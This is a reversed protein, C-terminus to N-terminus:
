RLFDEGVKWVDGAGMTIVIDDKEAHNRLYTAAEPITPIYIADVLPVRTGKCPHGKNIAAVLDKSHVGGHEERASGYIDLIIVQDADSFSRAFDDFFTKTRTFTHPHFVVWLKQKPYRARAAKLTAQIETPHHAYDDVVLVGNATEGKVEFRRATGKFSQVAKWFVNDAIGLKQAVAYVLATNKKNHEGSLSLPLGEVESPSYDIKGTEVVWGSNGLVKERFDAFAKEYAELTKFFDSHDWDINTIILGRPNYHQFKNQYEDAEIVVYESKGVRANSGWNKVESGVIVTPDLGAETMVHGLLATTTTKGHSGSVAVGYKGEMLQGLAEPYSLMPIGRRLAEAYEPNKEGYATSYIVLDVDAPVNEKAFGEVFLIGSRRLVEDTQFREETDSGTVRKGWGHLVEALATMGVGKIGICYIRQATKILAQAM